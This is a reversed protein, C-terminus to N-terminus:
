KEIPVIAKGCGILMFLLLSVKVIKLTKMM